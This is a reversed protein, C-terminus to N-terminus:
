SIVTFLKIKFNNAQGNAVALYIGNKSLSIASPYLMDVKHSMLVEGDASFQVVSNNDGSCVFITDAPGAHAGTPRQIEDNNIAHGEGSPIDCMYVTHQCKDTFVLTRTSPIYACASEFLNYTRDPLLRHQIDGERGQVTITRVPRPHNTTSIVFTDADLLSISSCGFSTTLTRQVTVNSEKSVFMLAISNRSLLTCTYSFQM